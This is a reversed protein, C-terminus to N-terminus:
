RVMKYLFGDGEFTLRLLQQEALNEASVRYITRVTSSVKSGRARFASFDHRGTLRAGAKFIAEVDLSYPCHWSYRRKMVQPFPALDITYSYCKISASYRPHFKPSVEEADWVVVEPPLLSNIALPLKEAPIFFPAQYTVVQGRAHVGADTRGAAAVRLPQKYLRYLARELVGQITPINDTQLQFGAYNTGDYSLKLCINLM